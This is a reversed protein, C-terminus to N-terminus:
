RGRRAVDELFGLLFTKDVPSKGESTSGPRGQSGLGGLNGEQQPTSVRNELPHSTPPPVVISPATGDGISSIRSRNVPGEPSVAGASGNVPLPSVPSIVGSVSRKPTPAFPSRAPPIPSHGQPKPSASKNNFLSLLVNKQDSPVSERRDMASSQPMPSHSSPVAPQAPAPQPSNGKLMDLLGQAHPTPKHTPAAFGIDTHSQVVHGALGSFCFTGQETMSKGGPVQAQKQDQPQPRKLIQPKFAPQPSGSVKPANQPSAQPPRKLIQQPMFPMNTSPSASSSGNAPHRNKKVTEFDPANVPGSVTASTIKTRTPLAGHNGPPGPNPLEAPNTAPQASM